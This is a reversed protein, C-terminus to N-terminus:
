PAVQPTMRLQSLDYGNFALVERAAKLRDTPIQPDRNLIWGARGSPVGVVATRYGEDVWLVWYDATVPVGDLEVKLRGPGDIRATGAITSPGDPKQCANLVSLTAPDTVAYDATTQSCGSQFPAPFSAIEYWRGAYREPDFVAMSTMQVSSDRYGTGCAALTLALIVLVARTM